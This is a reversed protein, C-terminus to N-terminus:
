TKLLEVFRMQMAQGVAALGYKHKVLMQGSAARKLACEPADFIEHM